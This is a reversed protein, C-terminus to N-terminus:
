GNTRTREYYKRTRTAIDRTYEEFAMRVKPSLRKLLDEKYQGVIRPSPEKKSVGVRNINHRASYWSRITQGNMHSFHTDAYETLFHALNGNPFARFYSM